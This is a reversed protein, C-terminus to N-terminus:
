LYYMSPPALHLCLKRRFCCKANRHLPLGHRFNQRDEEARKGKRQERKCARSISVTFFLIVRPREHVIGGFCEPRRSHIGGKQPLLTNGAKFLRPHIKSIEILRILAVRRPIRRESIIQVIIVVIPIFQGIRFPPEYGLFFILAKTRVPSCLGGNEPFAHPLRQTNFHKRPTIRLGHM